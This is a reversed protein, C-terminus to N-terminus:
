SGGGLMDSLVNRVDAAYRQPNCPGTAHIGGRCGMAESARREFEDLVDPQSLRSLIAHALATTPWPQEPPPDFYMPIIECLDEALVERLDM